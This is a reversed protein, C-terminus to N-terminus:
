KTKLQDSKPEGVIPSEQSGPAPASMVGKVMRRRRGIFITFCLGALVLLPFVIMIAQGSKEQVKAPSSEESTAGTTTSPSAQTVKPAEDQSQGGLSSQSPQSSQKQAADPDTPTIQGFSTAGFTVFLISLVTVVFRKHCMVLGEEFIPGIRLVVIEGLAVTISVLRLRM